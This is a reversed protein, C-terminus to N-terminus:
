RLFRVADEGLYRTSNAQRYGIVGGFATIAVLGILGPLAILAVDGLRAARLYQPYGQRAVSNGSPTQGGAAAGAREAPTGGATVSGRLGPTPVGASGGAIAEGAPPTAGRVPEVARPPPALRPVLLPAQITPLPGGDAPPAGSLPVTGGGADVVPEEQAIRFSPGPPPPKPFPNFPAYVDAILANFSAFTQEVSSSAATPDSLDISWQRAETGPFTPVPVSLPKGVPLRVEATSRPAPAAERETPAPASAAAVPEPEPDPAPAVSRKKPKAPAKDPAKTPDTTRTSSPASSPPQGPRRGNGFISLPRHLIDRLQEPVTKPVTTPTPAMTPQDVNGSDDPTDTDSVNGPEDGPEALAIGPGAGVLMLAALAAGIGLLIRAGPTPM